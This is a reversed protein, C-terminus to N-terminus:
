VAIRPVAAMSNDYSYPGFYREEAAKRAAVADDFSYFYGLNIRKKNVTISVRWKQSKEIWWVGPYGTSNDVRIRKNYGNEIKGVCRLNAKRNDSLDHNVHDVLEDKDANMVLRHLRIVEGDVVTYFYGESNRHWYFQMVNEYDEKDIVFREGKNTFGFVHDGIFSWRNRYLCKGCSKSNGSTLNEQLVKTDNGCECICEWQIRARGKSDIYDEARYIATLKGFRQGTLDIFKGM